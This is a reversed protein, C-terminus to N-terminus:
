SRVLRLGSFEEQNVDSDSAISIPVVIIAWVFGTLWRRVVRLPGPRTGDAVRVLRLGTLLKGVSALSITTLVVHNLFSVGFLAGIATVWFRPETVVIGGGPEAGGIAGAALGCNLALFADVVSSTLRRVEDNTM